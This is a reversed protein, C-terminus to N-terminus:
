HHWTYWGSRRRAVAVARPSMVEIAFATLRAEPDVSGLVEAPTQTVRANRTSLAAAEVAAATVRAEPDVDGLVEAPVQTVRSEPL